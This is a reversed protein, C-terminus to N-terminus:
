IPAPPHPDNVVGVVHGHDSCKIFVVFETKAAIVSDQMESDFKTCGCFPCKAQENTPFFM